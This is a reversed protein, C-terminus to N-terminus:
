RACVPTHLPHLHAILIVEKGLPGFDLQRRFWRGGPFNRFSSPVVISNHAANPSCELPSLPIDHGSVHAPLNTELSSGSSHRGLTIEFQGLDRDRLRTRALNEHAVDVHRDIRVHTPAHDIALAVNRRKLEAFGPPLSCRCLRPHSCRSTGPRPSRGPYAQSARTNRRPHSRRSWSRDRDRM